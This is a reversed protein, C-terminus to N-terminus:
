IIFKNESLSCTCITTTSKSKEIASNMQGFTCPSCFWTLLLSTCCGEYNPFHGNEAQKRLFIQRQVYRSWIRPINSLVTISISVIMMIWGDNNFMYWGAWLLAMCIMEIVIYVVWIKTSCNSVYTKLCNYAIGFAQESGSLNLVLWIKTYKSFRAWIKILNSTWLFDLLVTCSFVLAATHGGLDTAKAVDRKYQYM